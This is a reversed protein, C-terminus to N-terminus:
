AASPFSVCAAHRAGPATGAAARAPLLPSRVTFALLSPRKPLASAAQHPTLAAGRKAGDGVDFATSILKLVLVM